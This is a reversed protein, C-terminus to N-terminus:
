DAKIILRSPRNDPFLGLHMHIDIKSQVLELEFSYNYKAAIKYVSAVIKCWVERIDRGKLSPIFDVARGIKHLSKPSSGRSALENNEADTRGDDTLVIVIGCDDRVEDLFLLFTEDMLEPHDFEDWGFHTLKEYFTRTLM